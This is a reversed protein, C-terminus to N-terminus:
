KKRKQDVKEGKPAARIASLVDRLESNQSRENVRRPRDRRAFADSPDLVGKKVRKGITANFVEDIPDEPPKRKRKQHSSSVSAEGTTNSGAAQAFNSPPALMARKKEAQLTKWEDPRRQLLYLNLNRAFFKGYPSAALFAEHPMLSRAIKEQYHSQTGYSNSFFTTM